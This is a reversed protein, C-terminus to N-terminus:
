IVCRTFNLGYTGNTLDQFLFIKPPFITFLLYCLIIIFIGIISLMKLLQLNKTQKLIFLVFLFALVECIIFTLIDVVLISQQTIATYSYFITPILIIPTLLCIFMAFSYNKNKVFNHSCVFYVLTPLISMKLHEWTSENTPFFIGSIVNKNSWEYLFHTLTGFACVFIFGWFCFWFLQKTTKM